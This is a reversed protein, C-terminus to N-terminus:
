LSHGPMSSCYPHAASPPWSFEPWPLASSSPSTSTSLGSCIRPMWTTTRCLDPLISRAGAETAPALMGALLTLLFLMWLEQAGSAYWIVILGLILARLVNDLAIIARPQVRDILWGMGISTLIAPLQLALLIAAAAAGLGTAQLVFWPLAIVAFADGFLSVLRGAWLRGFAPYRFLLRLARWSTM